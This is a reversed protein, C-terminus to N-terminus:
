LISISLYIPYDNPSPTINASNTFNYYNECYYMKSLRQLQLHLYVREKGFVYQVVRWALSTPFINTWDDKKTKFQNNIAVHPHSNHRTQM